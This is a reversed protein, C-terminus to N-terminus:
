SGFFEKRQQNLMEEYKQITLDKLNNDEQLKKIIEDKRMFSKKIKEELDEIEKRHQNELDEKQKNFIKQQSNLKNNLIAIEADGKQLNSKMEIELNMKEKNFDRTLNSFKDSLENYNEQLLNYKKEYNENDIIKNNLKKNLLDINEELSIRNKTEAHLKENLDQLKKKLDSNEEILSLNKENAKKECEIYNKKRENLTEEGLKEIVINIQKDRDKLLNNKMEKFKNELENQKKEM